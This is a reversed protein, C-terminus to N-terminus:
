LLNFTAGLDVRVQYMEYDINDFSKKFISKFGVQFRTGFSVKKNLRYRFGALLGADWHDLNNNFDYTENVIGPLTANDTISKDDSVVGNTGKTVFSGELILSYYVGQTFSWNSNIDYGAVLPIQLFRIEVDTKTHGSFYMASSHNDTYMPQSIVDASASFALVHYSLETGLSWRDTLRYATGLGINVNPKPTGNANKPIDSLPFPIAGGLDVGLSPCLSWRTNQANLVAPMILLILLAAKRLIHPKFTM